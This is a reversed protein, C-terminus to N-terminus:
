VEENLWRDRCRFCTNLECVNQPESITTCKLVDRRYEFWKANEVERIKSLFDKSTKANAIDMQLFEFRKM